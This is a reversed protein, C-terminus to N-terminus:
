KQCRKELLGWGFYIDFWLYVLILTWWWFGLYQSIVITRQDVPCFRIAFGFPLGSCGFNKEGSQIVTPPLIKFLIKKKLSSYNKTSELSWHTTFDNGNWRRRNEIKGLFPWPSMSPPSSWIFSLVLVPTLMQIHKSSVSDSGVECVSYNWHCGLGDHTDTHKFSDTWRNQVPRITYIKKGRKM